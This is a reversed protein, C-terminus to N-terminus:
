KVIKENTVTGDTHRLRMIYCGAGLPLTEVEPYGDVTLLRVGQLNYIESAAVGSAAATVVEIGGNEVHPLTISKSSSRGFRDTVTVEVKNGTNPVTCYFIHYTDNATWTDHGPVNDFCSSAWPDRRNEEFRIVEGQEVGDLTWSTKWQPDWDWINMLVTKEDEKGYKTTGFQGNTYLRFMEADPDKGTWVYKWSIDDGDAHYIYYGGPVGDGGLVPPRWEYGGLAVHNREMISPAYEPFNNFIRHLHGTLVLVDYDKLIDLVPGYATRAAKNRTLPQHSMVVVKSGKAVHALDNRIWAMAEDSVGRTYEAAKEVKVNDFSLFHIKGRNFSYYSPGWEEHYLNMAEKYDTVYIRDHNGPTSYIPTHYGSAEVEARYRSYDVINHQATKSPTNYVIDGLHLSLPAFGDAAELKDAAKQMDAYAKRMEAYVNSNFYEDPQTDAHLLFSFSNDDGIPKLEFDARFTGGTRDIPRYFKMVVGDTQSPAYGSPLTYYVFDAQANSALYYSGDSSTTTITYGDTVLVGPLGREGDHVYGKIDNGAKDPLEPLDIAAAALPMLAMTLFISKKNM